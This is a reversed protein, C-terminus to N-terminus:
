LCCVGAGQKYQNSTTAAQLARFFDSPVNAGANMKASPLSSRAPRAVLCTLQARAPSLKSCTRHETTCQTTALMINPNNAVHLRLRWSTLRGCFVAALWKMLVPHEKCKPRTTVGQASGATRRSGGAALLLVGILLLLLLLLLLVKRTAM